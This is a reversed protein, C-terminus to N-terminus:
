LPKVVVEAVKGLVHCDLLTTGDNGWRRAFDSDLHSFFRGDPGQVVVYHGPGPGKAQVVTGPELNQATRSCYEDRKEVTIKM